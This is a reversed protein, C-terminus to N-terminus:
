WELGFYFCLFDLSFSYRDVAFGIGFRKSIGLVITVQSSKSPM